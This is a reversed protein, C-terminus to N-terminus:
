NFNLRQKCNKFIDNYADCRGLDNTQQTCDVFQKWEFECPQNLAQQNDYSQQPVQQQEQEGGRGGTFANGIVHGVSSGIAVGGATAMMQGFLGPGKQPAAGASPPAAPVPARSSPPPSARRVPASPRPSASRRRVM